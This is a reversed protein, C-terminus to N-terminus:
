TAESQLRQSTLTLEHHLLPISVLIADYSDDEPWGLRRVTKTRWVPAELWRMMERFAEVLARRDYPHSLFKPDIHPAALPDKSTVRVVGRSQPNDLLAMATM